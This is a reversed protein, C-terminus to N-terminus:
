AHVSHGVSFMWEFCQSVSVKECEAVQIFCSSSLGKQSLVRFLKMRAEFVSEIDVVLSSVVNFYVSIEREAKKREEVETLIRLVEQLIM